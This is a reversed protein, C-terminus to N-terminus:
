NTRLASAWLSFGSRAVNVIEFGARHLHRQLTTATFGTRHGMFKNGAAIAVGFGYLMDLASIPGAGSVYATEELQDAVVLEAVKRLDPLTIIAFGGPRLVRYFERLAIPVEDASLHEVNHASWVADFSCDHVISMDVISAEIDPSVGADIDLRVERWEGPTFFEVPIKDPNAAGCGVHLLDRVVVGSGLEVTEPPKAVPGEVLIDVAM